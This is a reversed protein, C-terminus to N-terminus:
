GNSFRSCSLSFLVVMTKSTYLESISPDFFAAVARAAHANLVLGLDMRQVGKLGKESSFSALACALDDFELVKKSFFFFQLIRSYRM